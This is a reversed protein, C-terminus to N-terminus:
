RVKLIFSSTYPEGNLELPNRSAAFFLYCFFFVYCIKSKLNKKYNAYQCQFCHDFFSTCSQSFHFTAHNGTADPDSRVCFKRDIGIKQKRRFMFNTLNVHPTVRQLVRHYPKCAICVPIECFTVRFSQVGELKAKGAVQLSCVVQLQFILHCFHAPMPRLPKMNLFILVWARANKGSLIEATPLTVLSSTWNQYSM